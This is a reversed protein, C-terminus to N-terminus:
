NSEVLCIAQAAIGESDGRMVHISKVAKANFANALYAYGSETAVIIVEGANIYRVATNVAETFESDSIGTLLVREAMLNRDSEQVQSDIVGM